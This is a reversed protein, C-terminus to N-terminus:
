DLKLKSLEVSFEEMAEFIRPSGRLIKSSDVIFINNNKFAKIEALAPNANKIEDPSNFSMAGAIFDPNEMIIFENSLIPQEGKVNDALNEVGLLNLVQGPLTTSNFSRMPSASFLVAGKIKPRNKSTEELKILKEKSEDHLKNANVVKNTIEGAAIINKLIDDISNAKSILVPIKSTKLNDAINATMGNLIVLDPEMAVIQELNPRTITGISPLNETKDEPWIKSQMTKGIAVVNEEGNILYFIEVFAPDTIIVKKYAKKEVSNGQHDIILNDKIEFGLMLNSFILLSLISLIFKKM